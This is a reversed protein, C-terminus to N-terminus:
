FNNSPYIFSLYPIFFIFCFAFSIHTNVRYYNWSKQFIWLLIFLSWSWTNPSMDWTLMNFMKFQVKREQIQRKETGYLWPAIVSRSRLKLMCSRVAMGPSSCTLCLGNWGGGSVFFFLLAAELSDAPASRQKLMDDKWLKIKLWSPYYSLGQCCQILTSM